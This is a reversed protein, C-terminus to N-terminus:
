ENRAPSREKPINCKIIHFEAIEKISFLTNGKLTEELNENVMFWDKEFPLFTKIYDTGKEIIALARRNRLEIIEVLYCDSNEEEHNTISDYMGSIRIKRIKLKDETVVSGYRLALTEKAHRGIKFLVPDSHADLDLIRQREEKEKNLRNNNEVETHKLLESKLSEPGEEINSLKEYNKLVKRLGDKKYAMSGPASFVVDKLKIIELELKDKNVGHNNKIRYIRRDIQDNARAIIESSDKKESSYYMKMFIIFIPIIFILGSYDM